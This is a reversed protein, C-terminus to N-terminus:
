EVPLNPAIEKMRYQTRRQEKWSRQRQRPLDLFAHVLNRLSRKGRIRVGLERYETNCCFRREQQTRPRRWM